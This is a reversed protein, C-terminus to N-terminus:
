FGKAIVIALAIKIGLEYIAAATNKEEYIEKKVDKGFGLQFFELGFTVSIWVSLYLVIGGLNSMIGEFSAIGSQYLWAVIGIMFIVIAWNFIGSDIKITKLKDNM